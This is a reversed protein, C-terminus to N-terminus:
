ALGSSRTSGSSHSTEPTPRAGDQQFWYLNRNPLSQIIPWMFGELVDRIYVETNEWVGIDFWKLFVRGDVIMGWVMIKPGGQIRCAEDIKPDQGKLVWVRENQRNPCTHLLFVKEDTWIVRDPFTESKLLLWNSYELRIRKHQDTLETTLNIKYPFFNLSHCLIKWVSTITLVTEVAIQRISMQPNKRVLSSVKEINEEDQTVPKERKPPEMKVSGTNEFRKIVTKFVYKKPLKRPFKELGKLKTYRWRVKDLDKTKYWWAVIETCEETLFPSKPAM